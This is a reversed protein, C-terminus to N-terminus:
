VVNSWIHLNTDQRLIYICMALQIAYWFCVLHLFLWIIKLGLQSISLNRKGAQTINNVRDSLTSAKWLRMSLYAIPIVYGLIM